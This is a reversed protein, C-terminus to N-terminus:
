TRVCSGAACPPLCRVSMPNTYHDFVVYVASAAWTTIVAIIVLLARM